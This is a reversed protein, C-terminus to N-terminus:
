RSENITFRLEGIAKLAVEIWADQNKHVPKGLMALDTRAAILMAQSQELHRKLADIASEELSEAETTEPAEDVNENYRSNSFNRRHKAHNRKSKKLIEVQEDFSRLGSESFVLEAESRTLFHWSSDRVAYSGDLTEYAVQVAKTNYIEVQKDYPLYALKKSGASGDLLLYPCLQKQGIRQFALLIDTNLWPVRRTIKTFVTVDDEVLRCLIEGAQRWCDIGSKIARLFDDVPDAVPKAIIPEVKQITKPM